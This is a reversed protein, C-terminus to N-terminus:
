TVHQFQDFNIAGTFYETVFVLKAEDATDDVLLVGTVPQGTNIIQDTSNTGFNNSFANNLYTELSSTPYGQGNDIKFRSGIHSVWYQSAAESSDSL